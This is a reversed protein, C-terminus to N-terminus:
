LASRRSQLLPLPLCRHSQSTRCRGSIGSALTTVRHVPRYRPPLSSCPPSSPSSTATAKWRSRRSSGGSSAPTGAPLLILAAVTRSQPFLPYASNPSSQLSLFAGSGGLVLIRFPEEDEYNREDGDRWEKSRRVGYMSSKVARRLVRRLEDGTGPFLVSHDLIAPHLSSPSAFSATRYRQCTSPFFSAGLSSPSTSCPQCSFPLFPPLDKQATSADHSPRVDGEWEEGDDDMADDDVVVEAGEEDGEEGEEGEIM